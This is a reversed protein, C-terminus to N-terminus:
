EGFYAAKPNPNPNVRVAKRDGISTDCRYTLAISVTAFSFCIEGEGGSLCFETVEISTAIGM